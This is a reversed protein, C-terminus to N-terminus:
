RNLYDNMAKADMQVVRWEELITAGAEQYFKIAPANWDLVEWGIRRVNQNIGYKIVEKLLQSGIGQGRMSQTVILDELHYVLGRWTSYRPYILAIGVIRHEVLACFCLFRPTAGFGDRELESITVEVAEPMKEYTALEQILAHVQPMDARQALRIVTDM